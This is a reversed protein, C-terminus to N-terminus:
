RPATAVPASASGVAVDFCSAFIVQYIAPLTARGGPCAFSVVNIVLHTSATKTPADIEIRFHVFNSAARKGQFSAM